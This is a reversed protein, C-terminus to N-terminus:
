HSKIHFNLKQSILKRPSEPNGIEGIVTVLQGVLFVSTLGRRQKEKIENM